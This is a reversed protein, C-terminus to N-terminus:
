KIGQVFSIIMNVIEGPLLGVYICEEKRCLWICYFALISDKHILSEQWKIYSTLDYRIKKTLDDDLEKQICGCSHFKNDTWEGYGLCNGCVNADILDGHITAKQITCYICATQAEYRKHDNNFLKWLRDLMMFNKKQILKFPRMRIIHHRQKTCIDCIFVAHLFRYKGNCASITFPTGAQHIMLTTAKEYCSKCITTQRVYDEQDPLNNTCNVIRCSLIPKKM